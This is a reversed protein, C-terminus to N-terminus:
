KKYVRKTKKLRRKMKKSKRNTKNKNRTRKGGKGLRNKIAQYENNLIKFEEQCQLQTMGPTNNNPCKDPHYILSLQKYKKKVEDFENPDSLDLYKNNPFLTIRPEAESSRGSTSESSRESYEDDSDTNAEINELYTLLNEIASICSKANRSVGTGSLQAAVPNLQSTLFYASENELGLTSLCYFDINKNIMALKKGINKGTDSKTALKNLEVLAQKLSNEISDLKEQTCAEKFYSSM